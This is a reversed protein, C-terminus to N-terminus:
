PCASSLRSASPIPASYNSGTFSHQNRKTNSCSFLQQKFSGARGPLSENATVIADLLFREEAQADAEDYAQQVALLAADNDLGLAALSRVANSDLVVLGQCTKTRIGNLTRVLDAIYSLPEADEPEFHWPESANIPIDEELQNSKQYRITDWMRLGLLLEKALGAAVLSTSRIEVDSPYTRMAVLDLDDLRDYMHYYGQRSGATETKLKRLLGLLASVKSASQLFELADFEQVVKRLGGFFHEIMETGHQWSIFAEEPWFDRYNRILAINADIVTRMGDLTEKAIFSQANYGPRNRVFTLWGEFTYRVTLLMKIREIPQLSRNQIADHLEGCLFLFVIADADFKGDEHLRCALALTAESFARHTANDQRDRGIVDRLYLTRASLERRRNGEGTYGEDGGLREAMVRQLVGESAAGDASISALLHGVGANVLFQIVSELEHAAESSSPSDGIVFAAFYQAKLINAGAMEGSVLGQAFRLYVKGDKTGLLEELGQHEKFVKSM